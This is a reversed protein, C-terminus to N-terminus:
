DYFIHTDLSFIFEGFCIFQYVCCDNLTTDHSHNQPSVTGIPNYPQSSLLAGFQPIGKSTKMLSPLPTFNDSSSYDSLEIFIYSALTNSCQLLTNNIIHEQKMIKVMSSAIRPTLITEQSNHTLSSSVICHCGCGVLWQRRQFSTTPNQYLSSSVLNNSDYLVDKSIHLFCPQFTFM